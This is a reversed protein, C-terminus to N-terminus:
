ATRVNVDKIVNKNEDQLISNYEESVVSGAYCCGTRFRM